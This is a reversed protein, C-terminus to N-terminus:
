NNGAKAEEKVERLFRKWVYRVESPSLDLILIYPAPPPPHRREVKNSLQLEESQVMPLLNVHGLSGLQKM